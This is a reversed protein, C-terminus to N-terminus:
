KSPTICVKIGDRLVDGSKVLESVADVFLDHEDETVLVNQQITRLIGDETAWAGAKDRSTHWTHLERLIAGKLAVFVAPRLAHAEVFEGLTLRQEPLLYWMFVLSLVGLAVTGGVLTLMAFGPLIDGSLSFWLTIPLIVGGAACLRREHWPVWAIVAGVGLVVVLLIEVTFHFPTKPDGLTILATVGALTATIFVLSVIALGLKMYREGANFGHVLQLMALAVASLGAALQSTVGFDNHTVYGHLRLYIFVILVGTAWIALTLSIFLRFGLLPITETRARSRGVFATSQSEAMPLDRELDASQNEAM